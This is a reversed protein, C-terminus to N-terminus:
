SFHCVQMASTQTIVFFPKFDRFTRRQSDVFSEIFFYASIMKIMKAIKFRHGFSESFVKKGMTQLITVSKIISGILFIISKLSLLFFCFLLTLQSQSDRMVKIYVGVEKTPDWMFEVSNNSPSPQCVDVMGYSLPVDVELLREGPRARQWALMQERETYQLRREHFCIRITSQFLFTAHEKLSTTAGNPDSM